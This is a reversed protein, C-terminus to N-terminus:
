EYRGGKEFLIDLKKRAEHIRWSVTSEKVGLLDAAKKHTLGHEVVLLLAEKEGEPLECVQKWVEQVFFKEEANDNKAALTEILESGNPHRNQSKYWDKGANMVLVYLWSTFKSKGKYSGINRALKICAEQTIDQADKENGSWKYAMKFMVEYYVNVLAEFAQRNGQMARQILKRDNEEPM